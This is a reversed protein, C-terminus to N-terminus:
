WVKGNIKEWEAIKKEKDANQLIRKEEEAYGKLTADIARIEQSPDFSDLDRQQQYLTQLKGHNGLSQHLQFIQSNIKEQL